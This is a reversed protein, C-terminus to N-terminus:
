IFFKWPSTEWRSTGTVWITGTGRPMRNMCDVRDTYSLEYQTLGESITINIRPFGEPGTTTVEIVFDLWTDLLNDGIEEHALIVYGMRHPVLPHSGLNRRLLQVSLDGNEIQFNCAYQESPSSRRFGILTRLPVGIGEITYLVQEHTPTVSHIRLSGSFRYDNILPDDPRIELVGHPVVTDGLDGTGGTGARAKGRLYYEVDESVVNWDGSIIDFNGEEYGTPGFFESFGFDGQADCAWAIINDFYTYGSTPAAALVVPGASYAPLDNGAVVHDILPHLMDDLYVRVHIGEEAILGSYCVRHFAAKLHYWEGARLPYYLRTEEIESSDMELVLQNGYDGQAGVKIKAKLLTNLNTLRTLFGVSLDGEDPTRVRAEIIGAELIEDSQLSGPEDAELV